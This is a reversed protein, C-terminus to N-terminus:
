YTNSAASESDFDFDGSFLCTLFYHFSLYISCSPKRVLTQSKALLKECVGTYNLPKWGHEGQYQSLFKNTAVCIVPM